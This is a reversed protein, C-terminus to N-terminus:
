NRLTAIIRQPIMLLGMADYISRSIIDAHQIACVASGEGELVVVGLRAAKLMLRDDSGNGICVVQEAGLDHIYRVKQETIQEGTFLQVTCPLGALEREATGSADAALVHISFHGSLEELTKDLNSLLKGDRAITGNYDLVLYKLDLTGFGPIDIKM